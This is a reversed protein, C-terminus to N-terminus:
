ETTWGHKKSTELLEQPTGFPLFKEAEIEIVEVRRNLKILQNFLPAVYMEKYNDLVLKLDLEMFDKISNFGYLGISAHNSIRLKETVQRVEGDVLEAFSWHNGELMSTALWNGNRSKFNLSAPEFASDGCWIVLRDALDFNGSMLGQSVSDAQGLTPKNLISVHLNLLECKDIIFKLSSESEANVVFLIEEHERISPLVSELSKELITKGAVSLSWKPELIGESKFRSSEGALPIVIM